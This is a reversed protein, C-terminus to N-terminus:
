NDFAGVKEQKKPPENRGSESEEEKEHDNV